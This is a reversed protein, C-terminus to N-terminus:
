GTLTFKASVTKGPPGVLKGMVLGRPRVRFTHRGPGVRYRRPSACPAFPKKDLRCEFASGKVASFSFKVKARDGHLRKRPRKRLKLKGPHSAAVLSSAFSLVSATEPTPDAPDGLAGNIGEHDLPVPLVATVPDQGLATAMRQNDSVRDASGAQTVMLFAPDGADAWARPSADHWSNTAANEAPTGFANYLSQAAIPGLEGIREGVDFADTDLSVVGLIQTRGVGYAALHGPPPATPFTGVLSVLHAGASHGILIIREPDGGYAAVNRHLWGIAEGVDHPHDPFMVRGPDSSNVPDPSLRYNLSAFVYGNSTFLNRKDAIQNGKDGNRWGGGHVYAVVPRPGAFGLPSYLDLQNEAAPSPAPPSDIDYGVGLHATYAAESAAPFLAAMGAVAAMATLLRM